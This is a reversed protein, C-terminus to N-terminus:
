LFPGALSPRLAKVLRDTVQHKRIMRDGKGARRMLPRTKLERYPTQMGQDKMMEAYRLARYVTNQNLGLKESLAHVSDDPSQNKARVCEPLHRIHVPPDFLDLVAHVSVPEEGSRTWAANSLTLKAQPRVQPCDLAQVPQIVFEPILRRM